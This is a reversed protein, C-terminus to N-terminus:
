RALNEVQCRKFALTAEARKRSQSTRYVIGGSFVLVGLKVALAMLAAADSPPWSMVAIALACLAITGAADKFSAMLAAAFVPLLYLVWFYSAGRGSCLLVGTIIWFNVLLILEVLWM